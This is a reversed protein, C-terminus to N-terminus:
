SGRFNSKGQGMEWMDGGIQLNVTRGPCIDSNLLLLEREQQRDYVPSM